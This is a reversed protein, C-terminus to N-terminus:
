VRHGLRLLSGCCPVLRICFVVLPFNNQTPLIAHIREELVGGHIDNVDRVTARWTDHQLRVFLMATYVTALALLFLSYVVLLVKATRRKAKAVDLTSFAIFALAVNDFLTQEPRKTDLYWIVVGVFTFTAALASWLSWTFPLFITTIREWTTKEKRANGM